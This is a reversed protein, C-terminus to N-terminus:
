AVGNLFLCLADEGSLDRRRRKGFAEHLTKGVRSVLRSLNAKGRFCGLARKFDRTSLGEVISDCSAEELEKSRFKWTLLTKSALPM